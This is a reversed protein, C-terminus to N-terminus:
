KFSVTEYNSLVRDSTKSPKYHKSWFRCETLIWCAGFGLFGVCLVLPDPSQQSGVLVIFDPARSGTFGGGQAAVGMLRGRGALRLERRLRQHTQRATSYQQPKHPNILQSKIPIIM